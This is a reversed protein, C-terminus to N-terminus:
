DKLYKLKYLLFGYPADYGQFSNWALKFIANFHKIIMWSNFFRFPPPCFYSNSPKLVVLSHDSHERALTTFMTQTQSNLFNQCVLFRDLKSLKLADDRFYM